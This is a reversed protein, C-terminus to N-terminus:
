LNNLYDLYDNDGELADELDDYNVDMFNQQCFGNEKKLCMILKLVGTIFTLFGLLFIIKRKM